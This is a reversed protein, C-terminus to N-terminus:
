QCRGGENDSRRAVDANPRGGGAAVEMRSRVEVVLPKRAGAHGGGLSVGNDRRGSTKEDVVCGCHMYRKCRSLRPLLQLLHLRIMSHNLPELRWDIRQGM